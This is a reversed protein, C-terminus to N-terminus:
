KGIGKEEEELEKLLELGKLDAVVRQVTKYSVGLRDAMGKSRTNSTRRM